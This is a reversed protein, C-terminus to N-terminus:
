KGGLPISSHRRCELDKPIPYSDRVKSIFFEGEQVLNREVEYRKGGSSHIRYRAFITFFRSSVRVGIGDFALHPM